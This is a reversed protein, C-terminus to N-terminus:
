SEEDLTALRQLVLGVQRPLVSSLNHLNVACPRTHDAATRTSAEELVRASDAKSVPEIIRALVLQAFVEDGGATGHTNNTIFVNAPHHSAM